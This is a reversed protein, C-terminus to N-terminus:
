YMIGSDSVECKTGEKSGDGYPFAIYDTKALGGKIEVYSGWITKGTQVRQKALRGRDDMKMVYKGGDDKRIFSKEIYFAANDGQMSQDDPQASNFTVGIFDGISFGETSNLQAKFRYSSSNNNGGGFGDNYDMPFPEVETIVGTTFVGNLYNNCSIETGVGYEDLYMEGISGTAYFGDTSTLVLFPTSFQIGAVNQLKSIIGDYKARVEGSEEKDRLTELEAEARAIAIRNRAISKELSESLSDLQEQTYGRTDPTFDKKISGDLNYIKEGLKYDGLFYVTAALYKAEPNIDKILTKGEPMVVKGDVMSDQVEDWSVSLSDMEARDEETFGGYEGPYYLENLGDKDTVFRAVVFGFEANTYVTEICSAFEDVAEMMSYDVGRGTDYVRALRIEDLRLGNKMSELSLEAEAVSNKSNDKEFRILVDGEKVTDGEKVLVEAIKSKETVWVTQANDAAVQGSSELNDGWYSTSVYEVPMVRVTKKSQNYKAVAFIIGVLIALSVVIIIITKITKKIKM